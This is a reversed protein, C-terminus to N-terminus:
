PLSWDLAKSTLDLQYGLECKGYVVNHKKGNIIDICCQWNTPDKLPHYAARAGMSCAGPSIDPNFMQADVMFGVGLADMCGKFFGDEGANIGMTKHCGEANDFYIQVASTSFVEVAGLFGNNGLGKDMANNKLYIARYAPPRLAAIHQKLRDPVIVADADAKVTWDYKLYEAKKAVQSWVNIFVDTNTLTAEGTDWAGKTSQWSHFIDSGDCAFVHAKNNRALKMLTVENSNPLIAMFCYLRNGAVPQGQPASPVQYETRGGAIFTGEWDAPVPINTSMWTTKKVTQTCGIFNEDKVICSFGINCCLRDKACSSGAWACGTPILTRNGLAKCNWDKHDGSSECSNMCTAYTEDKQFCTMGAAGRGASCCHSKSCDEGPSACPDPMCSVVGGEEASDWVCGFQGPCSDKTGFTSCAPLCKADKADPRWMCRSHDGCEDESFYTWCNDKCEKGDWTCRDVKGCVDAGFTWCGEQCKENKWACKTDPHCTDQSDFTDCAEMCKDKWMCKKNPTCSGAEPFTDCAPLCSGKWMCRESPCDSHKGYTLCSPESRQGLEKCSWEDLHFKGYQDYTGHTENPHVGKKCASHCEAWFDSKAYCQLGKEGGDLCCKSKACNQGEGSCAPPPAEEALMELSAFGPSHTARTPGTRALPPMQATVVLAAATGAILGLGLKRRWGQLVAPTTSEADQEIFPASDAAMEADCPGMSLTAAM